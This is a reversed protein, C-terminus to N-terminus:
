GLSNEKIYKLLEDVSDIIISAKSNILEEKTRFGWSVILGPIQCANATLIDVESDGVYFVNSLNKNLKRLVEYIMDPSPKKKINEKEGIAEDFINNFFKDNLIKVAEDCKNSVIALKYNLKKLNDLLNMIGPYPKTKIFSHDKYYDKFTKLIENFHPNKKGSPISLEILREMGNGLYSKINDCSKESLNYLNLTYNVADTLDDLSNLLTGDLDFIITDIM